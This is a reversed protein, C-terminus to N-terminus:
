REYESLWLSVDGAMHSWMEHFGDRANEILVALVHMTWKGNLQYLGHLKM